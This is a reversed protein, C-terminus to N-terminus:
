EMEQELLQVTLHQLVHISVDIGQRADVSRHLESARTVFSVRYMWHKVGGQM